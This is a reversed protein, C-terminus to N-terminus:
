QESRVARDFSGGGSRGFFITGGEEKMEVARRAAERVTVHRAPRMRPPSFEIFWKGARDYRVIQEDDLVAHVQRDADRAARGGEAAIDREARCCDWGSGPFGHACVVDGEAKTPWGGEAEIEEEFCTECGLVGHRCRGDGMTRDTMRWVRVRRAIPQLRQLTSARQADAVFAWVGRMEVESM